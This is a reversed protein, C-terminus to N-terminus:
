FVLRMQKQSNLHEAIVNVKGSGYEFLIERQKNGLDMQNVDISSHSKSLDMCGDLVDSVSGNFTTNVASEVAIAHGADVHEDELVIREVPNTHSLERNPIDNLCHFEITRFIDLINKIPLRSDCMLGSIDYCLQGINQQLLIIAYKM